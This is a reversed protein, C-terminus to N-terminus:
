LAPAPTAPADRERAAVSAFALGVLLMGVYATPFGTLSERTLADLLMVVLVGLAVWGEAAGTSAIRWALFLLRVLLLVFIALGIFGIDTAVALYASDVVTGQKSSSSSSTKGTLSEGARQSATGVAGVGRGLLWTSRSHGLAESWVNTRGNLTLYQTPSVRVARQSQMDTAAAFFAAAAVVATATLLVASRVHGRQAIVLGLLAVSIVAATRVYSFALGVGVFALAAYGAPRMRGRLAIVVIGLLLMGAYAFPEELTGFSRLHPGIQRVERGYTYGLGVLGSVGVFQQMIGVAAVGVASMALAATAWRFTRRPERLTLGVLLLSLPEAFLRVGHFWELGYGSQGSLNGGINLVYLGFVFAVLVLLTRDAPWTARAARRQVFLIAAAAAAAFAIIDKTGGLLGSVFIKLSPLAVFYVISGTVVVHPVLVFGAVLVLFLCAGVTLGLGLRTGYRGVFMVASLTLFGGLAVAVLDVPPLAVRRLM